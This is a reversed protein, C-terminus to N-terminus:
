VRPRSFVQSESVKKFFPQLKSRDIGLKDLLLVVESTSLTGRQAEILGRDVGLM